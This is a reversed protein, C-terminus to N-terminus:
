PLVVLDIIGLEDQLTAREANEENAGANDAIVLLVFLDYAAGLGRARTIAAGIRAQAGTSDGSAVQATLEVRDLLSSIPSEGLTQEAARATEIV